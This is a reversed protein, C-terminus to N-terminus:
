DDNDTRVPDVRIMDTSIRVDPIPLAEIEIREFITDPEEYLYEIGECKYSRKIPEKPKVPFRARYNEFEKDSLVKEMFRGFIPLATRSAQGLAGSRFHVSRHEAGVWAGAVLKPTVGVYWADSYNSSTGTKGGFETDWKMIDYNWLGRSTGGQETIGGKLLETMLFANEYSMVRKPKMKHEFVVYGDKDEIKTVIVPPLYMGEATVTSYANVLELLNVESAGLSLTPLEDLPSKVGLLKAAEVVKNLGVQKALQAAVSNVSKAFARKLTMNENSYTGGANRPTWAYRGSGWTFPVDGIRDCPSKGAIMAAAYVFLKFTSGPQRSSQAVNDYQWFNYDIGGVWAKVEKTDPELAVLSCHMIHSMYKISDISSMEVEKSGTDVDYVKMKKPMNMYKNISDLDGDYQKDLSRYINSRKALNPIFNRLERGDENRWPNQGRWHNFFNRQIVRMQEHAAEEAYKQMRSDITVHIKLGDSYIDYGNSEGWREVFNTLYSRFYPAMGADLQEKRRHLEIPLNKLSDAEQATIYKNDALQGIVVDRRGKSRDPNLYPNYATIAKLLGVLVASQEYNLQDPTIGFYTHAATHIGYANSGFSVTNLYMELIEKKSYLIELKTAATWEKTKELPLRLGPLSGVVGRTYQSRTKFMNKVLQQTITSAGRPNGTIADFTASVLGRFDIGFHRYFRKDETSILTNVMEESVEELTVIKRNETYYKGILKGDSTIIESALAQSPNAITKITPSKGFLWLFNIDVLLLFLIFLWLFTLFGNLAKKWHPLGRFRLVRRERWAIFVGTYKRFFDAIIKIIDKNYIKSM